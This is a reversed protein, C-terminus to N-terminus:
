RRLVGGTPGQFSERGPAVPSSKPARISSSLRTLPLRVALRGYHLEDSVPRLTREALLDFDAAGTEDGSGLDGNAQVGGRGIGPNEEHAGIEAIMGTSMANVKGDDLTIWAIGDEIEIRTKQSM